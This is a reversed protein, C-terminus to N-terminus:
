SPMNHFLSFTAGRLPRTPQFGKRKVEKLHDREDRGALPAHTSIYYALGFPACNWTAGRLPRTPQFILRSTIVALGVCTAGRLPRTPQFGKSGTSIVKVKRRAGCPARPNFDRVARPVTERDFDRGALPAHTSIQMEGSAILEWTTAGRLPRTPQFQRKVLYGRQKGTAGRLPRTPQFRQPRQRHEQRAPRAGCHTRPNFNNTRTSSSLTHGTAGRLPRTSQFAGPNENGYGEM